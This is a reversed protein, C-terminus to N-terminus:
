SAEKELAARGMARIARRANGLEQRAHKRQLILQYARKCHRCAYESGASLADAVGDECFGMEGYGSDCPERHNFAQWLHTKVRYKEDYMTEDSGDYAKSISCHGLKVGIRRTLSDVAQKAREHRVIVDMAKSM